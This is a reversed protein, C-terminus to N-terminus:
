TFFAQARERRGAPIKASCKKREEEVEVVM